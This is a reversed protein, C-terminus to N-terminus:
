GSRLSPHVRLDSWPRLQRQRGCDHHKADGPVRQVPYEPGAVSVPLSPRDITGSGRLRLENERYDEYFKVGGILLVITLAIAAVKIYESNRIHRVCGLLIALAPVAISTSYLAIQSLAIRQCPYGIRAPNTGVRWALWIICALTFLLSNHGWRCYLENVRGSLTGSQTRANSACDKM